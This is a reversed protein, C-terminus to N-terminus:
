GQNQKNSTTLLAVTISICLQVSRLWLLYAATTNQWIQLNYNLIVMKKASRGYSRVM